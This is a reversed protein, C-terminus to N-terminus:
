GIRPKGEWDHCEFDLEGLGGVRGHQGLGEKGGEAVREVSGHERILWISAGPHGLVHEAALAYGLVLNQEFRRVRRVRMYHHPKRFPNAGRRGRHNVIPLSRKGSPGLATIPPETIHEKARHITSMLLYHPLPRMITLRNQESKNRRVNEGAETRIRLVNGIRGAGLVVNSESVACIKIDQANM